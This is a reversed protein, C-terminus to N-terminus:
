QTFNAIENLTSPPLEIGTDSKVYVGIIGNLINHTQEMLEACENKAQKITQVFKLLSQTTNVMAELGPIKLTNVLVDLTNVTITVCKSINELRVEVITQQHPM